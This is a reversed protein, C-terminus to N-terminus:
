PQVAFDAGDKRAQDLTNMADKLLRAFSVPQNLRAAVAAGTVRPPYGRGGSIVPEGSQVSSIVKQALAAARKLDTYPMLVLFRDNELQTAVDIERISHILANGARARVIGGIGPPPPPQVDVAFLAVSLPYELKQARIIALELVRQFAEYTHLGRPEPDAALKREITLRNAALMVPAITGIDHPRLTVLDAGVSSARNVASIPAGDISAIVAPRQTEVALAADIIQEGGPIAVIVADVAGARVAGLVRQKGDAGSAALVITHGAAGIASQLSRLHTPDEYIGVRLVPLETVVEEEIDDDLADIPMTGSDSMPGFDPESVKGRRMTHEEFPVGASDTLLEDDDDDDVRLLDDLAAEAADGLDDPLRSNRVGSKTSARKKARTM